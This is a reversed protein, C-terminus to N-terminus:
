VDADQRSSEPGRNIIRVGYDPIEGIIGVM